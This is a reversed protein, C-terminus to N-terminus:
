SARIDLGGWYGGDFILIVYYGTYANLNKLKDFYVDRHELYQTQLKYGNAPIVEVEVQYNKNFSKFSKGKYYEQIEALSLDSKVLICSFFNMGNGNGNLKGCVSEQEIFNTQEPLSYAKFEKAMQNLWLNNIIPSLIFPSIVLLIFVVIIYKFVKLIKMRM